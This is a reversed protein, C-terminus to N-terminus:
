PQYRLRQPQQQRIAEYLPQLWRSGAYDPATEFQIAATHPQVPAVPALRGELRRIIEDLATALGVGRISRLALLAEQLVVVDPGTLPMQNISYDPDTYHYGRKKTHHIPAEYGTIGGPKMARFDAFLTSRSIGTRSGTYEYLGNEIAERLSIETWIRHRNTLCQDILRYRLLAHKNDPMFFIKPSLTTHLYAARVGSLNVVGLIFLRGSIGL